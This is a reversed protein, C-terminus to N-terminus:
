EPPITAPTSIIDKKTYTYTKQCILCKLKQEKFGNIWDELNFAFDGGFNGSCKETKCDIRVSGSISKQVASWGMRMIMNVM